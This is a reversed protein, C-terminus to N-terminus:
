PAHSPVAITHVISLEFDSLASLSSLGVTDGLDKVVDQMMEQYFSEGKEEVVIDLREYIRKFEPRM